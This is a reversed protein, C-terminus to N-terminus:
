LCGVSFRSVNLTALSALTDNNNCDYIFDDSIREIYQHQDLSEVVARQNEAAVCVVSPLNIYLRELQSVGGAGICFDCSSLLTYYYDSSHHCILRDNNRCMAEISDKDCNSAGIIVEVSNMAELNNINNIIKLTISKADAGGIYVMAKAFTSKTYTNKRHQKIQDFKRLILAFSPGLYKQCHKPVLHDYRSYMGVYFNHDLIVDCDHKRDALDDIVMIKKAYSRMPREWSADLAYHDVVLLDVCDFGGLFKLSEARDVEVTTGLWQKQESLQLLEVQKAQDYPLVYLSYGRNTVCKSLNGPLDRCIFTVTAKKEIVLEEALTLCRMLHGSGMSSSSDVRIVVNM